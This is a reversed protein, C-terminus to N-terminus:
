EDLGEVDEGAILLLDTATRDQQAGALIREAEMICDWLAHQPGVKSARERWQPLVERLKQTAANVKAGCWPCYRLASLDGSIAFLTHAARRIYVAPRYMEKDTGETRAKAFDTCCSDM